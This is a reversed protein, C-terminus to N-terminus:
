VHNWGGVLDVAWGESVLAPDNCLSTTPDPADDGRYFFVSGAPVAFRTPRPHHGLNNWGSVAHSGAVAAAVLGADNDPKWRRRFIAPTLLWRAQGDFSGPAVSELGDRLTHPARRCRALRREGGWFVATGDPFLAEPSEGAEPWELWAYFASRGPTGDSLRVDHRPRLFTLSFLLGEDATLTRKHLSVHTRPERQFLSGTALVDEARPTEGRLWASAGAARLWGGVAKGPRPHRVWLPLAMGTEEANWGPPAERLPDLRLIRRAARAGGATPADEVDEWVLNAPCPYLLEIKDNEGVIAPLPGAVHVELAWSPAGADRLGDLLPMGRDRVNDAAKRLDVGLRRLVHTRIAGALTQPVPWQSPADYGAALPRGGRFFLGDVAELILGTAHGTTTRPGANATM